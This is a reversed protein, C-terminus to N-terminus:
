LCNEHVVWLLFNSKYVRQRLCQHAVDVFSKYLSYHSCVQSGLLLFCCFIKSFYYNSCDLLDLDGTNKKTNRGFIYYLKYSSYRLLVFRRCKRFKDFKWCFLRYVKGLRLSSFLTCRYLCVYWRLLVLYHALFDPAFAPVYDQIYVEDAKYFAKAFRWSSTDFDCVVLGCFYKEM